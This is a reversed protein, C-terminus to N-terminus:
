MEAICRMQSRYPKPPSLKIACGAESEAKYTFSLMGSTDIVVSHNTVMASNGAVQGLVSTTGYYVTSTSPVNTTWSVTMTCAWPDHVATLGSITIVGPDFVENDTWGSHLGGGDVAQVAYTQTAGDSVPSLTESWTLDTTTDVVVGNRRIEYFSVGALEDYSADWTLAVDCGDVTMAFNGPVTPATTDFYTSASASWGSTRPVGDVARVRYTYLTNWERNEDLYLLDTTTGIVVGDREIEYFEVGTGIDTSATWEVVTSQLNGWYATVGAPVTPAQTDVIYSVTHMESQSGRDVTVDVSYRGEVPVATFTMAASVAFTEGGDITFSGSPGMLYFSGGGETIVEDYTYSLGTCPATNLDTVDVSFVQPNPIRYPATTVVVEPEACATTFGADCPWVYNPEVLVEASAITGNLGDTVVSVRTDSLVWEDGAELVAILETGNMYARRHVLVRGMVQHWPRTGTPDQYFAGTPQRYSLYYAYPYEGSIVRVVRHAGAPVDGPALETPALQVTEASTAVEHIEGLGIYGATIKHIANVHRLPAPAEPPTYDTNEGMICSFDGYTSGNAGSHWWGRIHGIEHAMDVSSWDWRSILVEPITLEPHMDLRYAESILVYISQCGNDTSMVYMLLDYGAFDEGDAIAADRAAVVRDKRQTSTCGPRYAADIEYIGVIDGTFGEVGDSMEQYLNHVSPDAPDISFMTELIEDGFGSNESFRKTTPTDTFEVLLIGVNTTEPLENPRWLGVHGDSVKATPSPASPAVPDPREITDENCGVLLVLALCALILTARQM